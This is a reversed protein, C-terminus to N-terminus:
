NKHCTQIGHGASRADLYGVPGPSRDQSAVWGAPLSGVVYVFRIFIRPLIKLDCMSSFYFIQKVQDLLGFCLGLWSMMGLRLCQYGQSCWKMGGDRGVVGIMSV